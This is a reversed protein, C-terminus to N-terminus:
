VFWQLRQYLRYWEESIWDSISTNLWFVETSFPHSWGWERGSGCGKKLAPIPLFLPAGHFGATFDLAPAREGLKGMEQSNIIAKSPFHIWKLHGWKVAAHSLLCIYCGSSTNSAYLNRKFHKPTSCNTESLWAKVNCLNWLKCLPLVRQDSMSFIMSYWLHSFSSLRVTPLVESGLATVPIFIGEDDCKESSLIASFDCVRHLITEKAILCAFFFFILHSRHNDACFLLFFHSFRLLVM